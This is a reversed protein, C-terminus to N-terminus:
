QSAGAHRVTRGVRNNNIRGNIPLCGVPVNKNVPRTDHSEMGTASQVSVLRKWEQCVNETELLIQFSPRSTRSTASFGHRSIVLDM